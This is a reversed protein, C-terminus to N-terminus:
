IRATTTLVKKLKKEGSASANMDRHQRDADFGRM